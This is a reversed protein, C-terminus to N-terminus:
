CIYLALCGVTPRYNGSLYEFGSPIGHVTTSSNLLSDGSECNFASRSCQNARITPRETTRDLKNSNRRSSWGIYKSIATGDATGDNRREPTGLVQGCSRLCSRLIFLSPRADHMCRSRMRRTRSSNRLVACLVACIFYRRVLTMCSRTYIRFFIRVYSESKICWCPIPLLLQQTKWNQHLNCSIIATIFGSRDTDLWM